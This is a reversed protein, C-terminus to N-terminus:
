WRGRARRGGHIGLLKFQKDFYTFQAIPGQWIDKWYFGCPIIWCFKIMIMQAFAYIKIELAKINLYLDVGTSISSRLYINLWPEVGVAVLLADVGIGAKFILLQVAITAYLKLGVTPVAAVGVKRQNMCLKMKLDLDFRAGMAVEGIISVFIVPITYTFKYQLGPLNSLWRLVNLTEQMCGDEPPETAKDIGYLICGPWKKCEPYMSRLKSDDDPLAGGNGYPNGKQKLSRKRPGGMSAKVPPADDPNLGGVLPPDVMDVLGGNFIFARMRRARVGQPHLEGLRRGSRTASSRSGSSTPAGKPTDTPSNGSSQLPKLLEHPGMQPNCLGVRVNYRRCLKGIMDVSFIKFQLEDRSKAWGTQLIPARLMMIRDEPELGQSQTQDIHEATTGTFTVTFFRGSQWALSSDHAVTSIGAPVPIAYKLTSQQGKSVGLDGSATAGTRPVQGPAGDVGGRPTSSTVDLNLHGGSTSPSTGPELQSLSHYEMKCRAKTSGKTYWAPDPCRSLMLHPEDFMNKFFAIGGTHRGHRISRKHYNTTACATDFNAGNCGNAAINGGVVAVTYARAMGHVNAATMGSVWLRSNSLRVGSIRSPHPEYTLTCRKYLSSDRLAPVYQWAVAELGEQNGSLDFSPAQKVASLDYLFIKWREGNGELKGCVWLVNHEESVAIGTVSGNYARMGEGDDDDVMMDHTHLVSGFPNTVVLISNTPTGGCNGTPVPTYALIHNYSACEIAAYQSDIYRTFRELLTSSQLAYTSMLGPITFKWAMDASAFTNGSLMGGGCPEVLAPASLDHFQINRLIFMLSRYLGTSRQAVDLCHDANCTRVPAGWQGVALRELFIQVPDVVYTQIQYTLTPGLKLLMCFAQQLGAMLQSPIGMVASVSLGDNFATFVQFVELGDSAFKALDQPFYYPSTCENDCPVDTTVLEGGPGESIEQCAVLNSAVSQLVNQLKKMGWSELRDRIAVGQTYIDFGTNIVTGAKTLIDEVNSVVGMIDQVTSDLQIIFSQFPLVYNNLLNRAAEQVPTFMALAAQVKDDLWGELTQFKEAAGTVVSMMCLFPGLTCDATADTENVLNNMPPSAPPPLTPPSAWSPIESIIGAEEMIALEEAFADTLQQMFGATNGKALMVGWSVLVRLM